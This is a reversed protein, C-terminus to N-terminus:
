LIALSIGTLIGRVGLYRGEKKVIKKIQKQTTGITRLQGYNQIKNIISIQFISKIVTYSGILVLGILIGLIGLQDASIVQNVYRFYPNNFAVPLNNKEGIERCYKKIDEVNKEKVHVYVMNSDENYNEYNELKEWSILFPFTEGSTTMDLIGSITYEGSLQDTNLNIKDGVKKDKGYKELWKKCVAIQKEEEPVKGSSLSMQNRMMYLMPQDMYFFTATYKKDSPIDGVIYYQGVREFGTEERLKLLKEESVNMYVAEYTDQIQKKKVELLSTAILGSFCILFSALAISIMLMVNRRKESQLNRQVINKIAKKNGSKRM